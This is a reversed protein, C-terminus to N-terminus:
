IDTRDISPGDFLSKRDLRTLTGPCNFGAPRRGAAIVEADRGFNPVPEYAGACVEGGSM